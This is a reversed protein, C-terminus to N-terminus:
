SDNGSGSNNPITAAKQITTPTRSTKRRLGIFFSVPPILQGFGEPLLVAIVKGDGFVQDVEIVRGDSREAPGGRLRHLMERLVREVVAAVVILFPHLSVGAQASGRSPQDIGRGGFDRDYFISRSKGAAIHYSLIVSKKYVHDAIYFYM